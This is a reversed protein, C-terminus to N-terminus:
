DARNCLTRVTLDGERRAEIGQAAAVAGSLTTYSPVKRLLAAPRVAASGNAARKEGANWM